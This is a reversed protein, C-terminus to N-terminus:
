LFLEGELVSGEVAYFDRKGKIRVGGRCVVGPGFVGPSDIELRVCDKLGPPGCPFMREFRDVSNIEPPLIVIPPWERGEILRLRYDEHLAFVDSRVSLLDALSKVPAFRTRPVELAQAGPFVSVATGCATELQCVKHETGDKDTLTKRNCILPLEFFGGRAELAESAAELDFWINNTNFYRYLEINGFSERDQPACMGSERLVYRGERDLALHGGKKDAECRRAVEMLFPCGNDDMWAPIRMDPVAGLNDINSVFIYRIKMKRLKRLLESGFLSMYIDGHGPPCWEKAENESCVYPELTEADIRPVKSQILEEVNRLDESGYSRSLFALTEKHTNFSNMLILPFADSQFARRLYRMQLMVIDLFCLNKRVRVLAKPGKELGITTALGGNLKLVACKHLLERERETGPVALEELKKLSRVPAIDKEYLYVSGGSFARSCSNEFARIQLESLGARKMKDAFAKFNLKM